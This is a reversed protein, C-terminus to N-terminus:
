AKLTISYLNKSYNRQNIDTVYLHARARLCRIFEEDLVWLVHINHIKYYTKSHIVAVWLAIDNNVVIYKM